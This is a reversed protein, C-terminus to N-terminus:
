FSAWSKLTVWKTFLLNYGPHFSTSDPPAKFVTGSEM